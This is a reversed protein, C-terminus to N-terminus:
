RKVIMRVLGGLAIGGGFVTLALGGARLMLAQEYEEHYGFFEGLVTEWMSSQAFQWAFVGLAALFLGFVLLFIGLKM